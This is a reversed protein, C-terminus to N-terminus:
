KSVFKKIIIPLFSTSFDNVSCKILIISILVYFLTVFIYLPFSANAFELIERTILVKIKSCLVVM